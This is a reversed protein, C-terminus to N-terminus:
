PKDKGGEEDSGMEGTFFFFLWETGLGDKDFTFIAVTLTWSCSSNGVVSNGYKGICRFSRRRRSRKCRFGKGVTEMFKYIRMAEGASRGYIGWDGIDLGGWWCWSPGVFDADLHKLYGDEDSHRGQAVGHAFVRPEVANAGWGSRINVGDSM